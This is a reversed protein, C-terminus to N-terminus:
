PVFVGQTAFRSYDDTTALGDAGGDRLEARGLQWIARRGERIVGPVLSNFTTDVDCDGGACPLTYPFQVVDMVTAPHIQAHGNLRDTIRLAFTGQLEGVYSSRAPRALV